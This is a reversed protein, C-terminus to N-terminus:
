TLLEKFFNFLGVIVCIAGCFFAGGWLLWAPLWNTWQEEYFGMWIYLGLLLAGIETM